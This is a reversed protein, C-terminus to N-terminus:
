AKGFFHEYSMSPSAEFKIQYGVVRKMYTKQSELVKAFFPNEKSKQEAVQDWAKLQAQLVDVPSEIFKVGKNDRLDLYSQSYADMIKWTFESSLVKPAYRLAMKGIEPLAEFTKKNILVEFCEAPQHYSRVMCFKAVDQLGLGADVTPNNFEAAEIVGRDLAPVVDPGPMATVAAGMATFVDVSLGVTRYKLGKFDEASKVEKKFWGLPQTMMPGMMFPTVDLKLVDRYLEEYLAKGGGHEFWSLFTNGNHGLAPGTGFLSLASNKNYWFAPVGFCADLTGKHVADAMDFAKVVSGPQLVDFKLAGASLDSVIRAYDQVFGFFLDGAGTGAQIRLTMSKAATAAAAPGASKPQESKGCGALGAVAVGGALAARGLFKRRSDVAPSDAKLLRKSPM